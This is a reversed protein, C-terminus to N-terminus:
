QGPDAEEGDTVDPHEKMRQEIENRLVEENRWEVEQRRAYLVSSRHRQCWERVAMTTEQQISRDHALATEELADLLWRECRWRQESLNERLVRRRKRREEPEKEFLLRTVEEEHSMESSM